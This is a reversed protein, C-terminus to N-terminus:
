PAYVSWFTEFSSNPGIDEDFINVIATLLSNEKVEICEMTKTPIQLKSERYLPVEM